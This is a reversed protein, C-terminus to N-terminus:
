ILWKPNYSFWYSHGATPKHCDKVKKKNYMELLQMTLVLTNARWCIDVVFKFYEMPNPPLTGDKKNM